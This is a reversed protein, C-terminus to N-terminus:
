RGHRPSHRAPPTTASPCRPELTDLTSGVQAGPHLDAYIHAVHVRAGDARFHDM